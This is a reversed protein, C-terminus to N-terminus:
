HQTRNDSVLTRLLPPREYADLPCVCVTIFDPPLKWTHSPQGSSHQDLVIRREQLVQYLARQAPTTTHELGSVVLAAPMAFQSHPSPHHHPASHPHNDLPPRVTAIKSPETEMRPAKPRTRLAATPLRGFIPSPPADPTSDATGERTHAPTAQVSPLSLEAITPSASPFTSSRRPGHASGTRRSRDRHQKNTLTPSRLIPKGRFFCKRVLDDPHEQDHPM